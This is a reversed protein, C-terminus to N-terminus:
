IGGLVRWSRRAPTPDAIRAAGVAKVWLSHRGVMLKPYTQPSSCPRWGGRDLRCRFSSGPESSRFRFVADSASSAAAPGSVITTQPPGPAPPPPFPTSSATTATWSVTMNSCGDYRVNVIRYSLSGEAQQPAPFAGSFALGAMPNGNSFSDDVIPFEGSATADFLSGCTNPAQTVQFRTITAGDASVDFEVTGGTTMAGRYTAPYDYISAVAVPALCGLLLISAGGILVTSLWRRRMAIM